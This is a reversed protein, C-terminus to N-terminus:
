ITEFLHFYSTWVCSIIVDWWASLLPFHYNHPFQWFQFSSFILILIIYISLIHYSMNGIFNQTVRHTSFMPGAFVKTVTDVFWWFYKFSVLVLLFLLDRELQYVKFRNTKLIRRPFCFSIKTDTASSISDKQPIKLGGIRHSRQPNLFEPFAASNSPFTRQDNERLSTHFPFTSHPLTKELSSVSYKKGWFFLIPLPALVWSPLNRVGPLFLRLLIVWKCALVQMHEFNM